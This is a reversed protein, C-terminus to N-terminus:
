WDSTKKINEETGFLILIDDSEIKYDYTPMVLKSDKESEDFLEKSKKIMLIELGYNNRLKLQSLTKGIFSNDPKSEVIAYGDAIHSIKTKHLTSIERSLGDALDSKLSEKNYSSLIDHRSIVGIVKRNNEISVVPVEDIDSRTLIKLAYDLDQVKTITNLKTDAIDSAILSDKM